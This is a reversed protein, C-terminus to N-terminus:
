LQQQNTIQRSQNSENAMAIGKDSQNSNVEQSTKGISKIAELVGMEMGAMSALQKGVISDAEVWTKQNASVVTKDKNDIAAYLINDEVKGIARLDTLEYSGNELRSAIKERKNATLENLYVGKQSWDISNDKLVKGIYTDNDIGNHGIVTKADIIGTVDVDRTRAAKMEEKINVMFTRDDNTNIGKLTLNDGDSNLVKYLELKAPNESANIIKDKLSDPSRLNLTNLTEIHAMAQSSRISSSLDNKMSNLKEDSIGSDKINLPKSNVKFEPLEGKSILKVSLEDKEMRRWVNINPNGNFKSESIMLSDKSKDYGVNIDGKGTKLEYMLHIQSDRQIAVSMQKRSKLENKIEEVPKGEIKFDRQLFKLEKDSLKSIDKVGSSAIKFNKFDSDTVSDVQRALKMGSRLTRDIFSESKVPGNGKTQIETRIDTNSSVENQSKKSSPLDLNQDPEEDYIRKKKKESM